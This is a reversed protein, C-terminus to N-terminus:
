YEKLHKVNKLRAKSLLKEDATYLITEETVALGLYAADYITVGYKFAFEVTAECRSQNMPILDIQMKLLDSFVQKVDEAGFDPNYRLSNGVEYLLLYPAVFDLKGNIYDDRLRIAHASYDEDNFWKVAVSADIVVKEPREM